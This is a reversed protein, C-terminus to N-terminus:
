LSGKVKGEAKSKRRRNNRLGGVEPRKLPGHVDSAAPFRTHGVLGQKELREQVDKRYRTWPVARLRTAPIPKGTEECVGYKGELIRKIAADVENIASQEHSLISLAMDHDFEDTACDASDNTDTVLPESTQEIQHDCDRGLRERLAQLVGYHWVWKMPIRIRRPPTGAPATSGTSPTNM